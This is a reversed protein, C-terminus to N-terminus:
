LATAIKNFSTLSLKFADTVKKWKAPYDDHPLFGFYANAAEVEDRVVRQGHADPVFHEHIPYQKRLDKIRAFAESIRRADDQGAQEKLWSTLARLSPTDKNEGARRVGFSDIIVSLICIRYLFSANDNPPSSLDQEAESREFAYDLATVLRMGTKEFLSGDIRELESLIGGGFISSIRDSAGANKLFPTTGLNRIRDLTAKITSESNYSDFWYGNEPPASATGVISSFMDYVLGQLAEELQDDGVGWIHQITSTISLPFHYDTEGPGKVRVLTDTRSGTRQLIEVQILMEGIM